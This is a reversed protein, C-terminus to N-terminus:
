EEALNIICNWLNIASKEWSYKNLIKDNNEKNVSFIRDFEINTYDYPNIYWVSDEYIEKFVPIDSVICDAGVSMAELPPIGFGEYFSPQIFAKCNSMLAKIEEDSLRGAYIFNPVDSEDYSTDGVKKGSIVFKSNPNLKAAELLWKNNKHPFRSGLSFYYDNPRLTLKDLVSNDSDFYEFHQWANPIVCIENHYNTYCKNIESKVTESVTVILKCNKVARNQHKLLARQFHRQEKSFSFSEPYLNVRCDHIAVVDCGFLPFQLLLDVSIANNKKIYNRAYFNKYLYNYIKRSFGNNSTCKGMKVVRINSFEYDDEEYAPILLEVTNAPVINDIGKLMELTYRHIGASAKDKLGKGIFVVKKM